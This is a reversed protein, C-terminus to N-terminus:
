RNSSKRVKDCFVEELRDVVRNWDYKEVAERRCAEKLAFYPKPNQLFNEIRDALAQPTTGDFLLKSDIAELIEVTGGM